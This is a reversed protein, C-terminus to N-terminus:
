KKTKDLQAQVDALVARVKPILDVARALAPLLPTLTPLIEMMELMAGEGRATRELIPAIIVRAQDAVDIAETIRPVLPDLRPIFVAIQRLLREEPIASM